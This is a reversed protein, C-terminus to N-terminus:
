IGAWFDTLHKEFGGERRPPKFEERYKEFYDQPLEFPKVADPTAKVATIFADTVAPDFWTGARARLENLANGVSIKKMNPRESVMADFSDCVSLIRAGLPIDTGKKGAPYGSGDFREHHHLILPVLDDLFSLPKLIRAGITPHKKVIEFQRLSLRGLNFLIDDQMGIKGIDHLLGAHYLTEAQKEPLGMQRATMRAYRAVKVSHGHTCIDKAELALVLGEITERFARLRNEDYRLAKHLAIAGQEGLAQLFNIERQLLRKEHSFYVALIGSLPDVITFPIGTVSVIRKKGLRELNPLRPDYRADRIHVPHRDPAQFIETLTNFDVAALSEYTFGCSVKTKIELADNDIIWFICGKAAMIDTIHTVINQLIDHTNQGAHIAKSVKLFTEFYRGPFMANKLAIACQESLTNLFLIDDSDLDMRRNLYIRLVMRLDGIIEFPLGIITVIGEKRAAEPYQVRLDSQVDSIVVPGEEYIETLGATARLPGKNLYHHSLGFANRLELLNQQRNLVRLSCGCANFLVASKQVIIQLIQNTGKNSHIATSIESFITFYQQQREKM